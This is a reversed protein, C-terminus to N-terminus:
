PCETMPGVVASTELPERSVFGASFNSSVWPMPEPEPGMGTEPDAGCRGDWMPCGYMDRHSVRVDVWRRVQVGGVHALVWVRGNSVWAFANPCRCVCKSVWGHTNPVAVHLCMQTYNQRHSISVLAIM